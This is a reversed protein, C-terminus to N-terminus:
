RDHVGVHTSHSLFSQSIFDSRTIGLRRSTALWWLAYGDAVLLAITLSSPSEGSLWLMRQQDRIAIGQPPQCGATAEAGTKALSAKLPV